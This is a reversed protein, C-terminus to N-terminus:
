KPKKLIGEWVLVAPSTIEGEQIFIEEEVRGV